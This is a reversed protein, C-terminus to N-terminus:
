RPSGSAKEAVLRRCAETLLERAARGLEQRGAETPHELYPGVLGRERLQSGVNLFETSPGLAQLAEGLLSKGVGPPGLLLVAGFQGEEAM